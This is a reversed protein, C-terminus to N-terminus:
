NTKNLEFLTLYFDNETKNYILEVNIILNTLNSYEAKLNFTLKNYDNTSYEIIDIV